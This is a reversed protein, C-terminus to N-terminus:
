EAASNNKLQEEAVEIMEQLLGPVGPHYVTSWPLEQLQQLLPLAESGRGLRILLDCRSIRIFPNDPFSAAAKSLLKLSQEKDGLAMGANTLDLYARAYGKDLAVAQDLAAFAEPNNKLRFLVLSFDYFAAPDDPNTLTAEALLEQAKSEAFMEAAYLANARLTWSAPIGGDLLAPHYLVDALTAIMFRSELSFDVEQNSYSLTVALTSWDAERIESILKYILPYAPTKIANVYLEKFYGLDIHVLVPGTIKPLADLHVTRFPIGRVTGSITDDKLTLARAEEATLFGADFTRQQFSALSAETMKQTSPQVFILESILGAAIAASTTQPPLLIPDPTQLRTRRILETPAATRVFEKIGHVNENRLPDLFPHLSFLVLAPKIEAHQRWTALGGSALEYVAPTVPEKFLAHTGPLTTRPASGAMTSIPITLLLAFIFLRSLWRDLM